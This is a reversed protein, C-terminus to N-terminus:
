QATASRGGSSTGPLLRAPIGGSTTRPAGGASANAGGDVSARGDASADAAGVRLATDGPGRGATAAAGGGWPLLVSPGRAGLLLLPDIYDEGRRAGLHLCVTGACHSVAADGAITGLLDGAAVPTGPELVGLVPEYTSILGDAHTVSVVGRGAVMGNFRITGAEVARVEAGEGSVAIDIGRHGPGYRHAPAEFAGVVPHPPPLPWQWRTGEAHAVWPPLGLILLCLLVLGLAARRRLAAATGVSGTHPAARSTFPPPPALPLPTLPAAM